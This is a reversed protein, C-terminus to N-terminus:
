QRVKYYYEGDVYYTFGKTSGVSWAKKGAKKRTPVSVVGRKNTKLKM